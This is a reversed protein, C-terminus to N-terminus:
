QLCPLKPDPFFFWVLGILILFSLNLFYNVVAAQYFGLSKECATFSRTMM